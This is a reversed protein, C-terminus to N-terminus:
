RHPEVAPLSFFFTAGKDVEGEAWIRGGHKEVIRKAVVLGVGSGEFEDGPHLRQFIGFLRVAQAIEFGVGNDKVYYINEDDGASGGVEVKAVKRPKTYKFANSLLNGLVLRIMSIDGVADPLRDIRIQVNRGHLSSKLDECVRDALERMNIRTTKFKRASVRSFALLDGILQKMRETGERIAAINGLGKDDLRGAYNKELRRAHWDIVVLPQKLDHSVSYGFSEMDAYAAELKAARVELKRNLVEVQALAAKLELILKEREKEASNRDLANVFIEGVMKLLAIDADQWEKEILVSDFGLFGVLTGRHSMPVVVLSRIDQSQFHDKESIAERPLDSVRPIHVVQHNMIKERFWPMSALEVGQLSRIQAKVGKRCWEHTNSIKTGDGSFLFVYSRDIQAFEGVDKLVRNIESDLNGTGANIFETSVRSVLKEISVRYQIDEMARKRQTIDRLTEIAAVIEGQANRIPAADFTIYRRKGGLNEYWGEAHLGNRTTVSTEYRDYYVSLLELSSDIVIDALTPRKERYFAKYHCDTGVVQLAGVGTLKECAKNWYVVKHRRDIVFTPV